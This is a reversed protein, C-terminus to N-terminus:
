RLGVVTGISRRELILGDPIREALTPVHTIIGVMREGDRLRELAEVAQDLSEPDLTGFGEDIFMADLRAGASHGAIDAIGCALALALALSALFTEGGSLTVVSRQEDANAHDIVTFNNKSSNLSYQGASIRKLEQSARLALDEISEDLLFGIFRDTKLEKAVKDYQHMRGRKEDIEEQMQAKRELRKELLAVASASQDATRRAEHAANELVSTAGAADFLAGDIGVDSAHARISVDLTEIETELEATQQRAAESLAGAYVQLAETEAVRNESDALTPPHCVEVDLRRLRESREGLLTRHHGLQRDLEALDNTVVKRAEDAERYAEEAEECAAEAAGRRHTSEKLRQRRAEIAEGVPEPIPDGLCDSLRQNAAEVREQALDRAKEAERRTAQLAALKAKSEALKELVGAKHKGATELSKKAGMASEAASAMEVKADELSTPDELEQLQQELTKATREGEEHKARQSSLQREVSALAQRAEKLASGHAALVSETEAETIPLEEISAGCVPCEDGEELHLRLAAARHETEIAQLELKRRDCDQAADQRSAETAGIADGLAELEAVKAQLDGRLEDARAALKLAEEAARQAESAAEHARAAEAETADALEQEAHLQEAQSRAEDLTMANEDLEVSRRAIEHAAETLSQADAELTALVAESGTEEVTVAWAERARRREEQAKSQAREAAKVAAKTEADRASQEKLKAASDELQPGQANLDTVLDAIDHRRGAITDRESLSQRAKQHAAEVADAAGAADKADKRFEKLAEITADGYEQALLEENAGVATRLESAKQRALKGARRFRDLDLLRILINRRENVNGKLFRAFDGQPLLVATIFSQYDLGLIEIVRENVATVGGRDVQPVGVEGELREFTASQAGRKPIRRAVRYDTNGVRFNLQVKAQSAGLSILEKVEQKGARPVLGYLALTVADLISSKGSGTPGTIVFLDLESFDIEQANRFSTFGEVALRVPRM